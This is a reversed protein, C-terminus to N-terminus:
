VDMVVPVIVPKKDLNIRFFQRLDLRIMETLDAGYAGKRVQVSYDHIVDKLREKAEELLWGELSESVVGKTIIEPPSLVKLSEKERVVFAFIVGTEALKRRDRVVERPLENADRDEILIKTEEIRAVREMSDPTVSLVDGNSAVLANSELVGAERALRAHHVLHRYEGHVPVFFKPRVAELMKKLEPRTAHGSVHIEEISEYVVDAGQKFLQNILRSISVENGPIFSSSFIVRDGKELTIERHEGWAIRTLASTFEGQCGTSLVIVQDRPFRGIQDLGILTGEVGKLHGCEAALRANQDMSRGLLAVKKGAKKASEFAQSMRAVNSAFLTVITLGDGQDFLSEFAKQILNEPHSHEHREVNTSDSLLLLVGDDGHKRFFDLDLPKGFHPSPDIRFDGTHIIKGAPTGIVLACADVISHNVSATEINFDGVKFSEGPKFTRLEVRDFIGSETLRERILLSTFPSAYLPAQVGAKHAFSLAGIHDEHGHTLLIGKLKDKRELVYSFNPVVFQVGFHDLESFLLGCDVLIMSDKSEIVMCNMGIEGLGGIPVVRIENREM